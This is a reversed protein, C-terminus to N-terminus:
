RWGVLWSGWKRTKRVVWKEQSGIDTAFYVLCLGRVKWTLYVECGQVVESSCYVKCMFHTCGDPNRSTISLGTKTKWKQFHREGRGAHLRTVTYTPHLSQTLLPQSTSWLIKFSCLDSAAIPFNRGSQREAPWNSPHSPNHWIQVTNICKLWIVASEDTIIPVCLCAVSVCM